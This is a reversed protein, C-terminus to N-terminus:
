KLLEPNQYLNGIVCFREPHARVGGMGTSEGNSLLINFGQFKFEVQFFPHKRLPHKPNDYKLIDGEYIEVGSKDHLGTFQMLVPEEGVGYMVHFEDGEESITLDDPLVQRMGSEKDWARFKIVRNTM